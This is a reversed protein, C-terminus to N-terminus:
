LYLYICIKYNLKSSAKINAQIHPPKVSASGDNTKVGLSNESAKSNLSNSTGPLSKHQKVLSAGTLTTATGTAGIATPHIHGTGNAIRANTRNDPPSGRNSTKSEGSIKPTNSDMPKVTIKSKKLISQFQKLSNEDDNVLAAALELIKTKNNSAGSAAAVLKTFSEKTKHNISSESEGPIIKKNSESTVLSRSSGETRIKKNESTISNNSSHHKRKNSEETMNETSLKSAKTIKYSKNSSAQSADSDADDNASSRKSYEMSTLLNLAGEDVYLNDVETSRKKRKPPFYNVEDPEPSSSIPEVPRKPRLKHQSVDADQGMEILIKQVGEDQCLNRRLRNLRKQKESDPEDNGDLPLSDLFAIEKCINKLSIASRNKDISNSANLNDCPNNTNNNKNDLIEKEKSLSRVPENSKTEKNQNKDSENNSNDKSLGEKVKNINKNNLLNVKIPNENNVSKAVLSSEIKESNEEAKNDKNVKVENYSFRKEPMSLVKDKLTNHTTENYKKNDTTLIETPPINISSNMKLSMDKANVSKNIESETSSSHMQLSLRKLPIEDESDFRKSIKNVHSPDTSSINNKENNNESKKSKPKSKPSVDKKKHNLLKSLPIEDDNDVNKTKNSIYNVEPVSQSTKNQNLLIALPIEDEEVEPVSQSTKNQNLLKALPIEDEELDKTKNSVHNVEPVSQSTKSENTSQKNGSIPVNQNINSASLSNLRASMNKQSNSKDNSLKQSPNITLSEDPVKPSSNKNGSNSENKQKKLKPHLYNGLSQNTISVTRDNDNKKTDNFNDAQDKKATKGCSKKSQVSPNQNKKKKVNSAKNNSIFTQPEGNMTNHVDVVVTTEKNPKDSSNSDEEVNEMFNPVKKPSLTKPRGRRKSVVTIADLTTQLEKSKTKDPKNQKDVSTKSSTFYSTIDNSPKESPINHGNITIAKKKNAKKINIINKSKGPRVVKKPRSAKSAVVGDISKQVQKNNPLSMMRAATQILLCSNTGEKTSLPLKADNKSNKPTVSEKSNTEKNLLDTSHNVKHVIENNETDSSNVNNMDSNEESKNLDTVNPNLNDNKLLDDNITTVTTNEGASSSQTEDPENPTIHEPALTGETPSNSKTSSFIDTENKLDAKRIGRLNPSMVPTIFAPIISPDLGKIPSSSILDLPTVVPQPKENKVPEREVLIESKKKKPRGPKKKNPSLKKNVLNNVANNGEMGNGNETEQLFKDKMNNLVLTKGVIDSKVTEVVKMKNNNSEKTLINKKVIHNNNVVSSDNESNEDVEHFSRKKSKGSCNQNKTNSNINADPSSGEQTNSALKAQAEKNKRHEVWRLKRGDIRTEKNQKIAAELEQLQTLAILKNIEDPPTEILATSSETNTPTSSGASTTSDPSNGAPTSHNVFNDNDNLHQHNEIQLPTLKTAAIVAPKKSNNNNNNNIQEELSQSGSRDKAILSSSTPTAPTTTDGHLSQSGSNSGQRGLRVNANAMNCAGLWAVYFVNVRSFVGVGCGAFM